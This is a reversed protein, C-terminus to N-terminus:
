QYGGIKTRFEIEIPIDRGKHYTMDLFICGTLTPARHKEASFGRGIRTAGSPLQYGPTRFYHVADIYPINTLQNIKEVPQPMWYSQHNHGNLVIDPDKCWTSQRNVQIVGKTVPAGNSVGHYWYLMRSPANTGFEYNFVIKLYGYYDAAEAKHGQLRMDYALRELLNTNIKELVKSEHNGMALIWLPVNKFKRLFQSADQVLADFYSSVKYQEKLAEPSRRPDDRGQMADFFDGAILVPAKEQDAQKLHETFKNIDCSISDYHVDSALMMPLHHTSKAKVELTFSVPSQQTFIM